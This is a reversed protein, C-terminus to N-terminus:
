SSQKAIEAMARDLDDYLWGALARAEAGARRFENASQVFTKLSARLKEVDPVEGPHARPDYIVSIGSPFTLKFADAPPRFLDEVGCELAMSCALLEAATFSRQGKEAQSVAQRPWPKGLYKALEGGFEEQTMEHAERAERIRMGVIEEIRLTV